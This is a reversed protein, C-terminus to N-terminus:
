SKAERCTSGRPRSAASMKEGCASRRPLRVAFLWEVPPSVPRLRADHLPTTRLVRRQARGESLARVRATSDVERITVLSSNCAGAVDRLNRSRLRNCNMKAKRNPDADSELDRRILRRLYDRFSLGQRRARRRGAAHITEPLRLPITKAPHSM